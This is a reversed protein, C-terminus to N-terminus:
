AGLGRARAAVGTGCDGYGVVVVTRGAFLLNTARLIGDLASQGTGHRNDFLHKTASDNVAVVPFRLVGAEAMARLRLM